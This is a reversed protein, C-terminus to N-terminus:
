NQDRGRSARSNRLWLGLIMGITILLAGVAFVAFASPLRSAFTLSDVNGTKWFVWQGGLETALLPTGTSLVVIGDGTEPDLRAATNIAPENSGDHGIIFDDQNNHAYLMTGHGWIDAGFESAQPERMLALMEASLVPNQAGPAQAQLLKSLNDSTTFLSTAALATYWRFPETNGDPRYNEALGLDIAQAHDFTTRDMELPEFVRESMFSAFSQGSVEEIMLQLLTYGGGSYQFSSGPVGGVIVRGGAHPSADAALTLSQELSQRKSPDSFGDYGLGDTLGATHSLLRRVTVQAADHESAPLHWRTLYNSVPADLDVRGEEVLALVGWATLWKGLSAVQFISDRDVKGGRSLFFGDAEQGDEILIFALNGQLDGEAHARAAEIFGLTDNEAALRNHGWGQDLGVFILAGWSAIVAFMSLTYKLVRKM